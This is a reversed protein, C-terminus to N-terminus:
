NNWENTKLTKQFNKFKTKSDKWIILQSAMRDLM